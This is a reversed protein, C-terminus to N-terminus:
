PGAGVQASVRLPANRKAQMDLDSSGAIRGEPEAHPFCRPCVCRLVFFCGAYDVHHSSNADFTRDEVLDPRGINKEEKRKPTRHSRRHSASGIGDVDLGIYTVNDAGESVRRHKKPARSM